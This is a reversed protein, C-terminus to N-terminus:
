KIKSQRSLILETCVCHVYYLLLSKTLGESRFKCDWQCSYQGLAAKWLPSLEAESHGKRKGMCWHLRWTCKFGNMSWCPIQSWTPVRSASFINIIMNNIINVNLTINVLNIINQSIISSIWGQIRYSDIFYPLIVMSFWFATYSLFNQVSITSIKM